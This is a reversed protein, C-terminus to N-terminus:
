WNQNGVQLEQLPCQPVIGGSVLVAHRIHMMCLAEVCKIFDQVVNMTGPTSLIACILWEPQQALNEAMQM